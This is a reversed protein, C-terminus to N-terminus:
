NGLEEALRQLYQGVRQRYRLPILGQGSGFAAGTADTEVLTPEDPNNGGTLSGLSGPGPGFQSAGAGRGQPGLAPLGGYLGINNM